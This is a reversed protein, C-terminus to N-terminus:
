SPEKHTTLPANDRLCEGLIEQDSFFHKTGAIEQYTEHGKGAVLLVDGPQLLAAAARIAEGRGAIRSYRKGRMGREIEDLIIEPDEDRPNDSTLFVFDANESAIRGMEPRKTRDRNGGCGFVLVLRADRAMLGRLASIAKELADPTHAYDVFASRLGFPDEVREMRGSVRFPRQLALALADPTLGLASGAAAAELLNMVNYSGPLETRVTKVADPFHIEVLSSDVSGAKVLASFRGSSSLPSETEPHLTCCFRMSEPVGSAMLAAHPDDCNLVAFGEPDLQDFLLRKASAYEQMTHHFDLHESSLNTFVAVRFRLAHVRRLVLAHSSVEMVAARCGEGLMLRFLAQLEHAEPTTRELPIERGGLQCLGTGIYGAPIGCSNLLETILRATTTKGNTGTVGILMLRDSAHAYFARAAEALARRSDAVRIYLVEPSLRDPLTECIVACAGNRVATDIYRHGDSAFGRVAVFLSGTVVDRSDASLSVVSVAGDQNGALELFDIERIMGSLLVPAAPKPFHSEPTM